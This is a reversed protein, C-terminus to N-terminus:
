LTVRVPISIKKLELGNSADLLHVSAAEAGAIAEQLQLVVTNPAVQFGNEAMQLMIEGTVEDLGYDAHFPTSIVANGVRVEVRVRPATTGFIQQQKARGQVEVSVIRSTITKAGTVLDFQLPSGGQQPGAQHIKVVAVPVALEQPALGGHFFARSGGAKFCAGNWPTVIELTGGWGVDSARLRVCASDAAGGRGIWVRRHLDVTEGGPSNITMDTGAEEGFLYGHDASVVITQVGHRALVALGRRLDRVVTDMTNRALAINGQECLMDIEQSTVVTLDAGAIGNSVARRNALLDELKVTYVRAETQGELFKLREARDKLVADGVKLALKGSGAEVLEVEGDLGPLLAAMGVETISPVSGIVCELSAAYSEDLGNVLEHAMEFRLADVLVYATKEAQLAPTVFTKFVDRQRKVGSVTFDADKFARVFAEALMGAVESFRRAAHYRLETLATHEDTWDFSYALTELRRQYTDLLYWPEEGETYSELIDRAARPKGKLDAAVRDAMLLLEGATTVMAWRSAVQPRQRPWYGSQRSRAIEIVAVDVVGRLESEVAAQLKEELALFTQVRELPIREFNLSQLDLEQEVRTTAAEYADALDSRKRWTTCLAACAERTRGEPALPLSAFTSPLGVPMAQAMDSILLYRSLAERLGDLPLEGPSVFSFQEQLLATLEGLADKDQIQQDKSSSSVFELAIADPGAGEFLLSLMGASREALRDLDALEVVGSEVGKEISKWADEPFLSKAVVSLRTNSRRSGPYAELGASALEILPERAQERAVPVYVVLRPRDCELYEDLAHRLSFYSGEFRFVATEPLSLSAALSEYAHEPDYWLIIGHEDVQREILRVVKDTVRGM